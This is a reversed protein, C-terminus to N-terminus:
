STWSTVDNMTACGGTQGKLHGLATFAGPRLLPVTEAKARKAVFLHTNSDLAKYLTQLSDASHLPSFFFFTKLCGEQM